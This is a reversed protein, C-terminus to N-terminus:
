RGSTRTSGRANERYLKGTYLSWRVMVVLSTWSRTHDSYVPKVTTYSVKMDYQRLEGNEHGTLIMEDLGAWIASTIKSDVQSITIKQLPDGSV